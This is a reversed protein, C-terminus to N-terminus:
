NLSIISNGVKKRLVNLKSLKKDDLIVLKLYKNIKQEDVVHVLKHVNRHLIILNKYSDDGGNRIPKKHHVEMNHTNLSEGTIGCKGNQAVFLSIRNDNYETSKNLIANEMVEKVKWYPMNQLKKHIKFRGHETYNCIDQSFCLAPKTKIYTIPYIVVGNLFYEKGRFGKYYKLYAKSKKGNTSVQNKLRNYLIRKVSFGINAFDQSVNTALKYYNHLGLIMANYKQIAQINSETQLEKIRNRLNEIIKLKSKDSVHSKIVEKNKKKMLKFKFGLFETYNKRLNTIKSKEKSIDLGLRDNLWKRIAIFINKADKYNKCMIKFDDAYRIIFIDKLQTSNRMSKYKDSPAHYTKKLKIGQWQSNVWWDLENLVVNSLLPSLIGGQPTGKTPIGIGKIEAKLMKSIISVLRKDKIGLSWLQKILKGHNVNDFFGKIDIDVVYKYNAQNALYLFRGIAHETSRNPRFGYSHEYFKAECIPELIQKICQQIIRDGITPIGLPRTKGNTKPIEVRKIPEPKFNNLRKRVYEIIIEIDKEGVNLINEKNTGPTKSGKNSKISRYALLINERSIINEYLKYFNNGQKSHQYLEDFVNQINYYENYRLKKKKYKQITTM